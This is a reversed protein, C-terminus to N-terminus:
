ITEQIRIDCKKLTWIPKYFSGLNQTKGSMRLESILNGIKNKKQKENMWEPLKNWLLDDIDGRSMSKHERIAKEVLDLYYSKDFAKNKSYSAKQGTKEARKLYKENELYLPHSTGSELFRGKKIEVYRDNVLSLKGSNKLTCELMQIKM